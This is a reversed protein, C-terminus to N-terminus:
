HSNQSIRKRMRFIFLSFTRDISISLLYVQFSKWSNQSGELLKLYTRDFKLLYAQLLEPNKERWVKVETEIAKGMVNSQNQKSTLKHMM